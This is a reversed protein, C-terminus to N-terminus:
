TLTDAYEVAARWRSEEVEPRGARIWAQALWTGPGMTKWRRAGKGVRVGVGEGVLFFESAIAAGREEAAHMERLGDARVWAEVPVAGPAAWGLAAAIRAARRCMRAHYRLKALLARADTAPLGPARGAAVIRAQAIVPVDPATLAHAHASYESALRFLEAAEAPTLPPAPQAPTPTPTPAPTQHAAVLTWVASRWLASGGAPSVLFVREQPIKAGDLGDEIELKELLSSDADADGLFIDGTGEEAEGHGCLVIVIADGAEAAAATRRIRRVFRTKTHHINPLTVVEGAWHASRRRQAQPDGIVPEWECEASSEADRPAAIFWAATTTGALLDRWAELEADMEIKPAALLGIVHVRGSGSGQQQLSRIREAFLPM